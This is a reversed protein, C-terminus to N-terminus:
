RFQQNHDIRLLKIAPLLEMIGVNVRIRVTIPPPEDVGFADFNLEQFRIECESQSPPRDGKWIGLLLYHAVGRHVELLRVVAPLDYGRMRTYSAPGGSIRANARARGSGQRGGARPGGGGRQYHVLTSIQIVGVRGLRELIVSFRRTLLGISWRPPQQDVDARRHAVYARLQTGAAHGAEHYAITQKKM